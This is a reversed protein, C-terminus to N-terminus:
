APRAEIQAGPVVFRGAGLHHLTRDLPAIQELPRYKGDAFVRADAWAAVVEAVFIDYAQQVHPEPLVRCDLWGCCGAVLPPTGEAAPMTSIGLAEFKDGDRGSRSGVAFALDAIRQTPVSVVMRGSAEVLERTWTSKDIVVAIRAPSFELPMNWAAAMVNRRGAHASAVLVTAGTNLLRYAQQLPVPRIREQLDPDTFETM